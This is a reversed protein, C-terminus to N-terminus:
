FFFSLHFERSACCSWLIFAPIKSYSLTPV